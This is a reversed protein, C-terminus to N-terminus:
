EKLCLSMSDFMILHLESLNGLQMSLLTANVHSTCEYLPHSVKMYYRPFLALKKKYILHDKYSIFDYLLPLFYIIQQYAQHLILNVM